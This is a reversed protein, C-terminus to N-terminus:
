VALNGIRGWQVYDWDTTILYAKFGLEVELRAGAVWGEMGAMVTQNM